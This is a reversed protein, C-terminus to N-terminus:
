IGSGDEWMKTFYIHQQATLLTTSIGSRHRSQFLKQHSLPSRVMDHRWASSFTEALDNGGTVSASHHILRQTLKFATILPGSNSSPSATWSRRFLLLWLRSELSLREPDDKTIGNDHWIAPLFTFYAIIYEIIWSSSILLLGHNLCICREIPFAPGNQWTRVAMAFRPRVETSYLM